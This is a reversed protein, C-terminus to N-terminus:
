KKGDFSAVIRECERSYKELNNAYELAWLPVTKVTNDEGRDQQNPSTKHAFQHDLHSRAFASNRVHAFQHNM